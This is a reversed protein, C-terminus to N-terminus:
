QSLLKKVLYSNSRVVKYETYRFVKAKKPREMSKYNKPYGKQQYFQGVFKVVDGNYGISDPLKVSDDAPEVFINKDALQNGSYKEIDAPKAWNACDCAWALYELEVTKKEPELKKSCQFATLLLFLCVTGSLYKIMDIKNIAFVLERFLDWYEDAYQKSIENEFDPLNPIEELNINNKHFIMWFPLEFIKKM